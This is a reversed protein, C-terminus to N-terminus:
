GPFGDGVSVSDTLVPGASAASATSEMNRLEELRSKSPVLLITLLAGLGLLAAAVTFATTYGHVAATAPALPGAHHVALYTTATLAM